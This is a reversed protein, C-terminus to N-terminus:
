VSTKENHYDGSKYEPLTKLREKIQELTIPTYNWCDSGVDLQQSNGPFTGRSHGYLRFLRFM